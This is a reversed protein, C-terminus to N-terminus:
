ISPVTVPTVVFWVAYKSAYSASMFKADPGDETAKEPNLIRIMMWFPAFEPFTAMRNLASAAPVTVIRAPAIQSMWSIVIEYHAM